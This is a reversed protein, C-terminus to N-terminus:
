PLSYLWRITSIIKQSLNVFNQFPRRSAKASESPEWLLSRENQPRPVSRVNVNGRLTIFREASGAGPRSTCAKSLHPLRTQAMHYFLHPQKQQNTKTRYPWDILRYVESPWDLSTEEGGWSQSELLQTFQQFLWPNHRCRNLPPLDLWDHPVTNVSRCCKLTLVASPVEKRVMQKVSHTWFTHLKSVIVVITLAFVVPSDFLCWLWQISKLWRRSSAWYTPHAAKLLRKSKHLVQALIISKCNYDESKIQPSSLCFWRVEVSVLPTGETMDHATTIKVQAAWWLLANTCHEGPVTATNFHLTTSRLETVSFRTTDTAALGRPKTLRPSVFLLLEQLDIVNAPDLGRFLNSVLNLDMDIWSVLTPSPFRVHANIHAIWYVSWQNINREVFRYMHHFCIQNGAGVWM